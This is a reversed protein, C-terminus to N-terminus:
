LGSISHDKPWKVTWGLKLDKSSKPEMTFGWQLLGKINETDPTYGQTTVPAIEVAIKEDRAAPTTEKVVIDVPDAHLNKIETVFERELIADKSIIGAEKREDRLTKRKVSVQDDVGFYFDYDEGPRLLPLSSQGVYADDRFLAVQGPLVPSDGKLKTRVVLYAETSIQPKIHVQVKSEADFAGVMLKTESGDTLVTSPGPIKYENMFGGTQIQAPTFSAARVPQAMPVVEAEMSLRKAETRQRWEALPDGARGLAQPPLDLTNREGADVPTPMASTGEAYNRPQYLNVWMPNLDALSASRQPQATSLTLAVDKWDESTQQRVSGYQLLQLEGKDKTNVRADYIPQWTANPIQYSLSLTLRAEKDSEVPVLVTYISRQEGSFQAQMMEARIKEKQRMLERLEVDKQQLAKRTERANNYIVDAAAAWQDPKLNMEALNEDSRLRAQEGIKGIFAKREALSDKEDQIAKMAEQIKELQAIMPAIVPSTDHTSMIHKSSVAGFKVTARAEGQVRLSDGLLAPPLNKFAITKSGAPIEIEAIRTVRARDSYVTVATIKSQAILMGEFPDAPKLTKGQQAAEAEMAVQLEDATQPASSFDGASMQTPLGAGGKARLDNQFQTFEDVAEGQAFAATTALTLAILFSLVIRM